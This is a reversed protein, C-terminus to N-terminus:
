RVGWKNKLYDQINTKENSSLFRNFIIIEAVDGNFCAAIVCGMRGNDFSSVTRGFLDHTSDINSEGATYVTYRNGTFDKNYDFRAIVTKPSSYAPFTVYNAQGDVVFAARNGGAGGFGFNFGNSSADGIVYTSTSGSPTGRRQAVVYLTWNTNNVGLSNGAFSMYDNSGDFNVVPLSNIGNVVYRPKLSSSGSQTLDIHSTSQPNIDYWTSITGTAGFATNVIESSDFSKESTADLWIVLNPTSAVPSSTTLSRASALRSKLLITRGNTIGIVLIGIVM